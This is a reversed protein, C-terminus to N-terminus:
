ILKWNAIIAFGKCRHFPQEYNNINLLKDNPLNPDFDWRKKTANPNVCYTLIEATFPINM